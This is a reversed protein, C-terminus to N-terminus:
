IRGSTYSEHFELSLLQTHRFVRRRLDLLVGQAIRAAQRVYAGACLGGVVAAVLYASGVLVLTGVDGDMLDPVASDIALSVLWPGAVQGLTSVVVLLGAVALAGRRPRLLAGLLRLSRSRVDRSAEADLRTADDASADTPRRRDEPGSSAPQPSEPTSPRTM